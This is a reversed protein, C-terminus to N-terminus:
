IVRIFFLTHTFPEHKNRKRTEGVVVYKVLTEKKIRGITNVTVYTEFVRHVPAVFDSYGDGIGALLCFICLALPSSLYYVKTPIFYHISSFEAVM